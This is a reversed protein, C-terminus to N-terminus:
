EGGTLDPLMKLELTLCDEYVKCEVGEVQCINIVSARADLTLGRLDLWVAFTTPKDRKVSEKINIINLLEIIIFDAARPKISGRGKLTLDIEKTIPAVPKKYLCDSGPCPCGVAPSETAPSAQPPQPLLTVEQILEGSGKCADCTTEECTHDISEDVTAQKCYPCHDHAMHPCFMDVVRGRGGCAQCKVIARVKM